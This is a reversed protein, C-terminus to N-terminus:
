SSAAGSGSGGSAGKASASRESTKADDANVLAEARKAELAEDSNTDTPKPERKVEDDKADPDLNTSRDKYAQKLEDTPEKADGALNDDHKEEADAWVGEEASLPKETDNAYNQYIPDTGRYGEVAAEEVGAANVTLVGSSPANDNALRAEMDLAATSPVNLEIGEHKKDKQTAVNKELENGALHPV